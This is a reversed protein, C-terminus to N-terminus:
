PRLWASGFQIYLAGGDPGFAVDAGMHLRYRRALEYRLGGGGTTVTVKRELVTRDNWAVATGAFGVLSVRKWFQWRLEVEGQALLDRQYRMVPAGRLSVYPRMYLPAAGFSAGGDGRV